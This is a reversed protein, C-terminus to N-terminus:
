LTGAQRFLEDMQESTLGLAASLGVVLPSDRRIESAFEWEIRAAEGEIGPMAEIAANVHALLGAGLLALRAQRMSVVTPTPPEPPPPPPSFTTGDYTWQYAVVDDPCTVWVYPDGVLFENMEVQAVTNDRTDIMAKKM